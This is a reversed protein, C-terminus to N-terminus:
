RHYSLASLFAEYVTGGIFKEADQHHDLMERISHLQGKLWFMDYEDINKQISFPKSECASALWCVDGPRDV